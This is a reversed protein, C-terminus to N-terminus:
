KSEKKFEKTAKKARGKLEVVEEKLNDKIETAKTIADKKIELAKRKTKRVKEKLQKRTESGSQPAYLLALGAGILGGLITGAMFSVASCSKKLLM